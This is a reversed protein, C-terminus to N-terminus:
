KGGTMSRRMNLANLLAGALRERQDNPTERMIREIAPVASKMLWEFTAGGKRGVTRFEIQPGRTADYWWGLGRVDAFARVAAQTTYGVGTTLCQRAMIMAVDDRCQLEIRTWPGLIGLQAAKNYVRMQRDSDVSGIYITAAKVIKGTDPRTYSTSDRVTRAPTVLDGQKWLQLIDSPDARPDFVDIALDLRAIKRAHEVVWKILESQPYLIAIMGRLDDGSMVVGIHQERRAEHWFVRAYTAGMGASYGRFPHLMEGTLKLHDCPPLAACLAEEVKHPEKPWCPIGNPWDMSYQLWDIGMEPLRDAIPYQQPTVGRNTLPPNTM